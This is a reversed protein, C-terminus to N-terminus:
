DALEELVINRFLVGGDAPIKGRLQFTVGAANVKPWWINKTYIFEGPAPPNVIIAATKWDSAARLYLTGIGFSEDDYHQRVKTGAPYDRTLSVGKRLTVVGDPAVNDILGSCFLNPLDSLDEKANFVACLNRRRGKVPNVWKSADKVKFSTAGKTVPEALETFSGDVVSVTMGGIPRGKMLTNVAVVVSVPDSGEALKYELTLRARKTQDVKISKVSRTAGRRLLLSGDGQKEMKPGRFDEPETYAIRQLEAAGVLAACGVAILTILSKRM